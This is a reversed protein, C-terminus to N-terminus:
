PQPSSEPWNTIDDGTDPKGDPGFSSLDYSDANHVGPYAYQYENGWPDRPIKWLLPGGEGMPKMTLAHLGEDTKPYRGVKAKFTELAASFNADIQTKTAQIKAKKGMTYVHPRFLFALVGVVAAVLVVTRLIAGTRWLDRRGTERKVNMGNEGRAAAAFRVERNGSEV